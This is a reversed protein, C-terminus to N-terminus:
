ALWSPDPEDDEEYLAPDYERPTPRIPQDDKISPQMPPDHSLDSLNTVTRQLEDDDGDKDNDGNHSSAESLNQDHQHDRETTATSLARELIYRGEYLAEVEAGICCLLLKWDNDQATRLHGELSEATRDMEQLVHLIPGDGQAEEGADFLQSQSIQALETQLLKEFASVESVVRQWLAGGETLAKKENEVVAQRASLEEAETAWTEKAMDLTRRAPVLAHFSSGSPAASSPRIPPNYLYRQTQQVLMALSGKYSSLKSEAANELQSAESTLQRHLARLELLRTELEHIESEVRDAESKLRHASAREEGGQLSEIKHELGKRKEIMRDVEVVAAQRDRNHSVLIIREEEKLFQLEQISRAIGRRASRLGIRKQAPQRVPVVKVSSKSAIFSSGSAGDGTSSRDDATGRNLGALLGESQADLYTQIDAQLQNAKREILLLPDKHRSTLELPAPLISMSMNTPPPLRTNLEFSDSIAQAGSLSARSLRQMLSSYMDDTSREFASM